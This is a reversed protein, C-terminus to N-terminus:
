RLRLAFTERITFFIQIESCCEMQRASALALKLVASCFARNGVPRLFVPACIVTCRCCRIVACILPVAECCDTCVHVVFQYLIIKRAFCPVFKNKIENVCERPTAFLTYQRATSILWIRQTAPL